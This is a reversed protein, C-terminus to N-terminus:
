TDTSEAIFSIPRFILGRGAMEVAGAASLQMDQNCRAFGVRRFHLELPVTGAPPVTLSPPPGEPATADAVPMTGAALLRFEQPAVTIPETSANSVQVRMRLVLEDMARAWTRRSCRQDVPAITVGSSTSPGDTRVFPRGTGACGGFGCLSAIGIALILTRM